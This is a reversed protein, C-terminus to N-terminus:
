AADNVVDVVAILVPSSQLLGVHTLLAAMLVMAFPAAALSGLVATLLHSFTLGLPLGPIAHDVIVGATGGIFLLPFIASGGM